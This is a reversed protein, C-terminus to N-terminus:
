FLENDGFGENLLRGDYFGLMFEFQKTERVIDPADYIFIELSELALVRYAEVAIADFFEEKTPLSSIDVQPYDESECECFFRGCYLGVIYRFDNTGRVIDPADYVFSKLQEIPMGPGLADIADFFDEATILSRVNVQTREFINQNLQITEM